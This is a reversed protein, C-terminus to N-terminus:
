LTLSSLGTMMVLFIYFIEPHEALKKKTRSLRMWVCSLSLGYAEALEGASRGELVWGVFLGANEEGVLKQLQELHDRLIANQEPSPSSDAIPPAAGEEDLSRAHRLSRRQTKARSGRIRFKVAEVLWGGPNPHAMLTQRRDWATLFVEQLIDFLLDENEGPDLLRRGIRFLFDAYERYLQEFWERENM